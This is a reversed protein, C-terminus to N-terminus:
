NDRTLPQGRRSGNPSNSVVRFGLIESGNTNSEVKPTIGSSYRGQEVNPNVAALVSCCVLLVAMVSAASVARASFVKQSQFIM